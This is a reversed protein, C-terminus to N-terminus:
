PNEHVVMPQKSNARQFSICTLCKSIAHEVDKSMSLWFIMERTKNKSKEKDM